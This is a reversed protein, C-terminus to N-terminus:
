MYIFKVTFLKCIKNNYLNIMKNKRLNIDRDLKLNEPFNEYVYSSKVAKLAIDKDNKLDNKLHKFILPNINV